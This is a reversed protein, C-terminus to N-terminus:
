CRSRIEDMFFHPLPFPATPGVPRSCFGFTMQRNLETFCGPNEGGLFSEFSASLSTKTHIGVWTMARIQGSQFASFSEFNKSSIRFKSPKKEFFRSPNRRNLEFRNEATHWFTTGSRKERQFDEYGKGIDLVQCFGISTKRM